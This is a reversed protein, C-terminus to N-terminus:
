TSSIQHHRLVSQGATRHDCARNVTPSSSKWRGRPHAHAQLFERQGYTKRRVISGGIQERIFLMVALVIGVGSAAILSVTL